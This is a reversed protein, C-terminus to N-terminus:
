RSANILELQNELFPYPGRHKGCLEVWYQLQSSWAPVEIRMIIGVPAPKPAAKARVLDGVQM